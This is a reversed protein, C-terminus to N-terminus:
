QSFVRELDLLDNDNPAFELLKKVLGYGKECDMKEYKCNYSYALALRYNANYKKPFLKVANKYQHIANEWKGQEIWYDGDKIFFEHKKLKEEIEVVELNQQTKQEQLFLEHLKQNKKQIINNSIYFGFAIIPVGILFTIIWARLSEIRRQKIVKDRLLSLEEKSITKFDVEGKAAKLYEKRSSLFSSDKKFISRKRLLKRNNRLVAQMSQLHGAGSM